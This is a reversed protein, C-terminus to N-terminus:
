INYNNNQRWFYWFFELGGAMNGVFYNGAGFIDRFLLEPASRYISGNARIVRMLPDRFIRKPSAYITSFGVHLSASHPAYFPSVFPAEFIRGDDGM